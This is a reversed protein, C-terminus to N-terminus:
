RTSCQVLMSGNMTRANTNVTLVITASPDGVHFGITQACDEFGGDDEFEVIGDGGMPDSLLIQVVTADEDFEPETVNFSTIEDGSFRWEVTREWAHAASAMLILVAATLARLSM